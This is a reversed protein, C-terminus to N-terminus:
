VGSKKYSMYVLDNIGSHKKQKHEIRKYESFGLKTYLRVAATNTDGVELIFESYGTTSIIEKIIASAVSQRYYKTHVAVFEISATGPGKGAFIDKGFEKSMINYAITGKFFGLHKCIIKRNLLVSKQDPAACSAIGAIDNEIIGVYFANVNFMHAFAKVLVDDSKSFFHLHKGFGDVFVKAIQEQIYASEFDSAKKVQVM